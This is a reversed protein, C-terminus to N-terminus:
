ASPAAELPEDIPRFADTGVPGGGLHGAADHVVTWMYRGLAAGFLMLFRDEDEHLIAGPVRAVSGPRFGQVPMVQPRLDVATFRAFLERALPGVITLAAHATTVDIVSVPGACADAAETLRERLGAAAGPDCLVLAREATYPCWWLGHAGPEAPHSRIAKGLELEAPAMASLDAADAQVEIKGLHSLDAFGVTDHCRAREDEPTDFALAVHWGDRAEIRAGAARAEREMPSRALAEPGPSLFELTV